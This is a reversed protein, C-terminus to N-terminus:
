KKKSISAYNDPFAKGNHCTICTVALAVDGVMAPKIKFYNENIGIEMRMMGRAINKEDKADSPFDLDTSDKNPAHCFNCKVGLAVDFDKEMIQYLLTDSIDKPLVKLNVFKQAHLQVPQKPPAIAAVGIVVTGILLLLIAYKRNIKM